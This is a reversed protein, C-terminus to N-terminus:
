KKYKSLLLVLLSWVSQFLMVSLASLQGMGGFLAFAAALGLGLICGFAQVIGLINKVGGLVDSAYMASIFANATGNHVIYAPYAAVSYDAYKEYIRGSSSTLVRVFGGDLAYQGALMEEDINPDATRVLVTMGSKELRLLEEKVRSNAQYSVVFMAAIRGAVTLYLLYRNDHKYKAEFAEPPVKVGHNMLLQRNGVLIKKGYIWGSTGMREEYVLSDVEPLISQKGVIVKDFVDQLPGKTNIIVAATQLIADDVRMGGFTKIGHLDCSGAPFLDAAEFVIANVDNVQEAGHFGNVMAGSSKIKKSMSLLASNSALLSVVPVSICASCAAASVALAINKSMFYSGVGIGISILTTFPTIRRSFTDAPEQKYAIELFNTAFRTHVSHKVVPDGMLLGHCMAQTDRQDDIDQVTYKDGGSMLFEFNAHVRRLMAQKGIDNCLFAFSLALPYVPLGQVILDTSIYAYAIQVGVFLAAVTVPFDADLRFRFLGVLGNRLTNFNFVLVVCTMVTLLTLMTNTDSLMAPVNNMAELVSFFLMLVTIAGTAIIRMSLKREKEALSELVSDKDGPSNYDNIPESPVVAEEGFDYYDTDSSGEAERRAGFLRFHSIKEKRRELLAEEAAAEDITQLAETESEFGDLRLQGDLNDYEEVVPLQAPPAAAVNTKFAEVSLIEPIGQLDATKEFKTKGRFVAPREIIPPPEKTFLIEDTRESKHIISGKIYRTDAPKHAPPPMGAPRVQRTAPPPSAPRGFDGAYDRKSAIPPLGASPTVPTHQTKLTGVDKIFHFNPKTGLERPDIVQTKATYQNNAQPMPDRPPVPVIQKLGQADIVQTDEQENADPTHFSPQVTHRPTYGPRPEVRGLTEKYDNKKQHIQELLNKESPFVTEQAMPPLEATDDPIYVPVAKRQHPPQAHTPSIVSKVPPTVQAQRMPALPIEQTKNHGNSSFVERAIRSAYDERPYNTPPDIPKSAPPQRNASLIPKAEQRQRKQSVTPSAPARHPSSGGSNPPAAPAKARLVIRPREQAARIAPEKDQQLAQQSASPAKKAPASAEVSPEEATQYTFSGGQKIKAAERLIDEISYKIDSM